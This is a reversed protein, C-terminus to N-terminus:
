GNVLDFETTPVFYRQPQKSEQILSLVINWYPKKNSKGYQFITKLQNLDNIQEWLKEIKCTRLLMEKLNELQLM